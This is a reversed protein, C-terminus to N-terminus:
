IVKYNHYATQYFCNTENNFAHNNLHIFFSELFKTDINKKHLRNRKLLMQTIGIWIIIKCICM